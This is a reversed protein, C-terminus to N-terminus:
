SSVKPKSSKKKTKKSLEYIVTKAAAFGEPNTKQLESLREVSDKLESNPGVRDVLVLMTGPKEERRGGTESGSELDLTWRLLKMTRAEVAREGNEVQSVYAQSIGLKEAM